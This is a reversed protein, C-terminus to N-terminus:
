ASAAFFRRLERAVLDPKGENDAATHGVGHLEVRSCTPLVQALADLADRLYAPSRSGGLLLVEVDVSRFQDLRGEMERVLLADYHMTPVLALPHVGDSATKTPDARRAMHRMLPVVVARPIFDFIRSSRTGKLVTVLAAGVDGRAMEADFAELWFAPSSGHVPLPPEYLAAKRVEPVILAAQLCVLAGSSLGFIFHSGTHRL